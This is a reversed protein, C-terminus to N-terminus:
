GDRNVEVKSSTQGELVVVVEGRDRLPCDKMTGHGIDEASEFGGTAKCVVNVSSVNALPCGICGTVSMKVRRIM